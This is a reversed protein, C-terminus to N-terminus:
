LWPSVHLEHMFYYHGFQLPDRSPFRSEPNICCTNINIQTYISVQDLNYVYSTFNTKSKIHKFYEVDEDWLIGEFKRIPSM